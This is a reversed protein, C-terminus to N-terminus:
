PLELTTLCNFLEQWRPSELSSGPRRRHGKSGQQCPLQLPRVGLNGLLNDLGKGFFLLFGPKTSSRNIKQQGM